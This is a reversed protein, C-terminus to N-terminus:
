RPSVMEFITYDFFDIDSFIERLGPVIEPFGPVCRGTGPNRSFFRFFFISLFNKKPFIADDGPFRPRSKGRPSRSRKMHTHHHMCGYLSKIRNHGICMYIRQSIQIAILGKLFIYLSLYSITRSFIHERKNCTHAM